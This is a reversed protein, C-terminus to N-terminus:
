DGLARYEENLREQQKQLESLEVFKGNLKRKDAMMKEKIKKIENDLIRRKNRNQQMLKELDTRSRSAVDDNMLNLFESIHNHAFQTAEYSPPGSVDRMTIDNSYFATNNGAGQM